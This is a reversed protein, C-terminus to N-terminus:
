LLDPLGAAVDEFQRWQAPFRSRHRRARRKELRALTKFLRQETADAVHVKRYRRLHKRAVCADQHQGLREQLRRLVGLVADLERPYAPELFELLYRLRKVDIRLRHLHRDPSEEDIARGRRLVRELLAAVSRSAVDEVRVASPAELSVLQALLKRYDDILAAYADGALAEILSRRAADHLRQLHTRYRDLLPAEEAEVSKTYVGLHALQVDLDRVRGLCDTLWRLRKGLRQAGEDPLVEVFTPLAARARRTAVRMQHVGEEHVGEWAHPEYLKIQYLQRKLNAVAVDHWRSQRDIVVKLMPRRELAGGATLLGREFRTLRAGIFTPELEVAALVSALLEHPGDKLELALERFEITEHASIRAADFAMEVLGRPHDPHSLGYAARRTEVSFLATLEAAPHLLNSLRDSVPGPKPRTLPEGRGLPQEVSERDFVAARARTIEQLAVRRGQEDRRERYSWGAARLAHNPTDFYRDRSTKRGRPQVRFGAWALSQQLRRLADEPEAGSTTLFKAELEHM